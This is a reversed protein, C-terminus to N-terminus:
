NQNVEIRDDQAERTLNIRRFGSTYIPLVGTYAKVSALIFDPEGLAKLPVKLNLERESWVMSAGPMEVMKPGDFARIKDYLTLIYLKPMREFPTKYNYGFLYIWCAARNKATAKSKQVRIMLNGDEIFFKVPGSARPLSVSKSPAPTLCKGSLGLFSRMMCAFDWLRNTKEPSAAPKKQEPTLDIATFDGFLENKRVFSLLYFASSNTQSPYFLVARHKNKLQQPSLRFKWWAVDTGIMDQPPDLTLLPHLHRPMPWGYAHVLYSYVRPKPLEKKLDALAVQLFLYLTKHDVNVDAAHSVFIKNPRFKLLVGKLDKLISEGVYPAGPSLANKYPVASIRTMISWFPSNTQWYRSFIDFTGFDPYGLFILKDVGLGLYKMANIAENRRVQGMAAFDWRTIPPLKRYVIFALENHEGYTLYAVRVQAGRSLAQQIIGACAITEDDPHPALVLVRDTKDFREIGPYGDAGAYGFWLGFLLFFLSLSKRM